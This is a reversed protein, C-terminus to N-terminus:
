SAALEVVFTAGQGPEGEARISGGMAEVLVKVISLGLGVSPEGATPRASLKAFRSFLHARDEPTLGPGQDKVSLRVRGGLTEGRLLVRTGPPSFKLANSVLNDLTESLFRRDALVPLDGGPLETELAIGKARAPDAHRLAAEQLAVGADLREPDAKIRGADISALNLFRRILANMEDGAKLIKAARARVEALDEEEMILETGLIMSNLPNRLDHSVIGLIQDKQRNLDVLEANMHELDEAQIRLREGREQIEWTAEHIRGQLIANRQRLFRTRFRIALIIGLAAATGYLGYAWWTRRLPPLIRFAFAAPASLNGQADRARVRLTYAGELLGTYDKQAEPSWPSWDRDFGELLAQYTVV